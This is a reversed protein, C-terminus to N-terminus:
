RRFVRRCDDSRHGARATHGANGPRRRARGGRRMSTGTIGLPALVREIGDAEERLIDVPLSEVHPYNLYELVKGLSCLGIVLHEREIFPHRARAAEAAGLGWAMRRAKTLQAM